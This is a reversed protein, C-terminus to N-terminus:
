SNAQRFLKDDRKLKRDAKAFDQPIQRTLRDVVQAFVNNDFPPATPDNCALMTLKGLSLGANQAPEVLGANSVGALLVTSTELQGLKFYVGKPSAHINYSAMQYHARMLKMSAAEQLTAFTVRKKPGQGLLHAIWGYEGGFPEGYEKIVRAYGKAIKEAQKKAYPAYGM